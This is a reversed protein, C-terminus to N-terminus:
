RSRPRVTSRVPAGGFQWEAGVRHGREVAGAGAVAPQPRSRRRPVDRSAPRRVRRRVRGRRRAGAGRHVRRRAGDAAGLRLVPDRFEGRRLTRELGVIWLVAGRPPADRAVRGLRVFAAFPLLLVGVTRLFVADLGLLPELLAEPLARAAPRARGGVRRRVVLAQRLLSLPVAGTRVPHAIATMDPGRPRNFHALTRGPVQLPDIVERTMSVNVVRRAITGGVMRLVAAADRGALGRDAVQDAAPPLLAAPALEVQRALGLDSAAGSNGRFRGRGASGRCATAAPRATDLRQALAVHQQHGGAERRTERVRARRDGFEGRAGPSRACGDGRARRIRGQGDVTM